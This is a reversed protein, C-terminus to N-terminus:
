DNKSKVLLPNEMNKIVRGPNGRIVENKLVDKLVVTGNDIYVNDNIQVDEKIVSMSSIFVNEGVSVHGALTVKEMLVCNKNVTSDHSVASYPMLLVNEMINSDPYAIVGKSVITGERIKSYDFIYSESDIIKAFKFDKEKWIEYEKKRVFPNYSAIILYTTTKDNNLLDQLSIHFIDTDKINSETFLYISDWKGSKMAIDYILKWSSDKAIIILKM